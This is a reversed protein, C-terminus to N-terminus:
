QLSLGLDHRFPTTLIRFSKLRANITEQRALIIWHSQDEDQHRFFRPDRYGSDALVKENQGLELVFASRALRLDSWSGCPVSGNVWM